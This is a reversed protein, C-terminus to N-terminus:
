TNRSFKCALGIITRHSGLCSSVSYNIVQKTPLKDSLHNAIRMAWGWDLRVNARLANSPSPESRKELLEEEEEERLPLEVKKLPLEMQVGFLVRGDMQRLEFEVVIIGAGAYLPNEERIKRNREKIPQRWPNRERLQNDLYKIEVSKVNVGDHGARIFIRIIFDDYSLDPHERLVELFRDRFFQKKARLQKGIDRRYDEIDWKYQKFGSSGISRPDM